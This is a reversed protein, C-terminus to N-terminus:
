NVTFAKGTGGVYTGGTNYGFATTNGGSISGGTYLTGSAGGVFQPLSIVVTLTGRNGGQGGPSGQGGGSAAAPVQYLLVWDNGTKVGIGSNAAASVSIYKQTGAFRSMTQGSVSIVTGGSIQIATNDSDVGDESGQVVLMGGAIAIDGNSDIADNGTARAYITGGNIRIHSEANLCDDFTNIEMYGGNVTLTAKSELGEGGDTAGTLRLIGSNVTLNGESKIVKPNAYDTNDEGGPRGGGTSGSVFFKAGTTGATIVLDNDDAGAAGITMTGDAVICKGGSGSSACTIVGGTLTINADSKICASTYSDTAGNENIYVAGDGATAVNINGGTVVIDGDASLGKGGDASRLSRVTITGGGVTIRGDAKIATCYSPDYGSGSPEPVTAGSTEITINGSIIAINQKSSIGKSQKGSVKINIAGGSVTLNDDAKIGKTDDASSTIDINGGSIVATGSGADIADGLASINLSGGSQVFGAEAHFGDSAASSVAIDGGLVTVTKKSSAVAHKAVGSINLKGYGEFELSGSKSILAANEENSSHDSLTNVGKLEVVTVGENKTIQVPPLKGASVIAASNLTIRIRNPATVNNQIKLSGGSTSGSVVFETFEGSSTAVTVDAGSVSSTISGDSPLNEVTATNGSYVIRVANGNVTVTQLAFNQNSLNDNGVTVNNVIAEYGDLTIVMKYEGAPVAALTYAGAADATTSQGALTNDAANLLKVSAGVAAGGGSKTIVGSVAYVPATIKQLVVDKGSVDGSVNVGGVTATEYGELTVVIQYAGAPIGAFVYTGAADVTTQGLDNGTAADLLKVAAGAAAGGDSKTIVGGINYTPTRNDAATDSKSCASSLLLIGGAGLAMVAKATKKIVSIIGKKM